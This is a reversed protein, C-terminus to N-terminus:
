YLPGSTVPVNAQDKTRAHELVPEVSEGVKPLLDPSKQLFANKDAQEYNVWRWHMYGPRSGLHEPGGMHFITKDNSYYDQACGRKFTAEPPYGGKAARAALDDPFTYDRLQKVEGNPRSASYEIYANFKAGNIRNHCPQIVVRHPTRDPMPLGRRAYHQQEETGDTSIGFVEKIAQATTKAAQTGDGQKALEAKV